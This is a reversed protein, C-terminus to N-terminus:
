CTQRIEAGMLNWEIAGYYLVSAKAKKNNPKFTDFVPGDQLRTNVKKPKILAKINTQKHM